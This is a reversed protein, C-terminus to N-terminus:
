FKEKKGKQMNSQLREMDKAPFSFNVMAYAGDQDDSIILDAQRVNAPLSRLMEVATRYPKLQDGSLEAFYYTLAGENLAFAEFKSLEDAFAAESKAAQAREILDFVGRKDEMAVFTFNETLAGFLKSYVQESLDAIVLVSTVMGDNTRLVLGFNEDLFKIDDICLAPVGADQSCDYYGKAATFNSAPAGYAIDRFLTEQASVQAGFIFLASSALLLFYRKMM